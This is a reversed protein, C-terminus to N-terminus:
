EEIEKILRAPNGGIIVNNPYKGKLVVSGAAIVTNDGIYVNKLIIVNKGVWVNRGLSIEGIDGLLNRRNPHTGHAEFDTMTVNAGIYCNAGIEIKNAAIIFNSNNFTVDENIIIISEPYRAQFESVSNKFYGGMKYGISVGSKLIITGQGTLITKQTFNVEPYIVIKKNILRYKLRM